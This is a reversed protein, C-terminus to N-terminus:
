PETTQGLTKKLNSRVEELEAPGLRAKLIRMVEFSDSDSPGFSRIFGLEAARRLAGDIARIDRIENNTGALFQYVLGRLQERTLVLRTSSDPASDFRALEERLCILLLTTVYSLPQRRGIRPVREAGEIEIQRIYAYGEGEDIVVEQGIQQFFSSVNSREARLCDWLGQEERYIPEHLLRALVFSRQPFQGKDDM